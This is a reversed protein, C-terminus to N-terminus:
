IDQLSNRLDLDDKPNPYNCHLQKIQHSQYRQYNAYYLSLM